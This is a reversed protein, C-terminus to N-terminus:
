TPIEILVLVLFLAHVLARRRVVYLARRSVRHHANQADLAAGTRTLDSVRAFILM